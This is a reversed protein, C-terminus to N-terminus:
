KNEAVKESPENKPKLIVGSLTYVGSIILMGGFIKRIWESSIESGFCVGIITGICSFLTLALVLKGNIRKKFIHLLLASSASFVFFLLNLGRASEPSIGVFMTLWIVLLGGSGVGLGSLIAIIMAIAASITNSTRNGM